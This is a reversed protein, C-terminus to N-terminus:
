VLLRDFVIQQFNRLAADSQDAQSRLLAGEWGNVLFAALSPLSQETTLEGVDKAERLVREIAKQWGTFALVLQSRLLDSQAAGDLSLRGVMCGNISGGPGFVLNLEKFYRRLRALPTGKSESLTRECREAERGAYRAIVERGFEEKSGFHHYFSGKPLGAEALIELLGTAEYGKEQMLKLGVDIFHERTSM